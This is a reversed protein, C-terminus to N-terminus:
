AEAASLSQPNSETASEASDSAATKDKYPIGLHARLQNVTTFFNAEMKVIMEMARSDELQAVKDRMLGVDTQLYHLIEFVEEPEEEEQEPTGPKMPEGDKIGFIRFWLDEEGRNILRQFEKFAASYLALVTAGDQDDFPMQEPLNHDIAFIMAKLFRSHKHHWARFAQFWDKFVQFSYNRSELEYTKKIADPLDYPYEVPM